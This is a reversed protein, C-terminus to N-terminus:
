RALVRKKTIQFDYLTTEGSPDFHYPNTVIINDDVIPCEDPGIQQVINSVPESVIEWQNTKKNYKKLYKAM